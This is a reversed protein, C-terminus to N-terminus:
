KRVERFHIWGDPNEPLRTTIIFGESQDFSRFSVLNIGPSPNMLSKSVWCELRKQKPKLRRCQKPHFCYTNKTDTVEVELLGNETLRIVTGIKHFLCDYAKVRSGVKFKHEAM